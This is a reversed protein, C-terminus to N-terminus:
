TFNKHLWIDFAARASILAPEVGMAVAMAPAHYAAVSSHWTCTGEPPHQTLGHPLLSITAHACPHWCHM